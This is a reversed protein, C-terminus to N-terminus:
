SIPAESSVALTRSAAEPIGIRCAESPQGQRPADHEAFLRRSRGMRAAALLIRGVASQPANRTRGSFSSLVAVPSARMSPQPKLYGLTESGDFLGVTHGVDFPSIEETPEDV